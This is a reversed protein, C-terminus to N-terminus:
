KYGHMAIFWGVSTAIWFAVLTGILLWRSFTARVIFLSIILGAQLFWGIWLSPRASGQFGWKELAQGIGMPYWVSFLIHSGISSYFFTHCVLFTAIFYVAAIMTAQGIAIGLTTGRPTM